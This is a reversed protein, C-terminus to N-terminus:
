YVEYTFNRTNPLGSTGRRVPTFTVVSKVLLGAENYTNQYVNTTSDTLVSGDSQPFQSVTISRIVNNRSYDGLIPNFIPSVSQDYYPNPANDYELVSRSNVQSSSSVIETVNGNTYRYVSRYDDGGDLAVETVNIVERNPGFEYRRRRILRFDGFDSYADSEDVTASQGSAEYTVDTRRGYVLPPVCCFLHQDIRYDYRVLRNQADYTFTGRDAQITDSSAPIRHVYNYTAARVRNLTDYQIDTRRFIGGDAYTLTEQRLRFRQAGPPNVLHDSCASLGVLLLLGIQQRFRM